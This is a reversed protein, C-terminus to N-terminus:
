MESASLKLFSALSTYYSGFYPAPTRHPDPCFRSLHGFKTWVKDMTQGIERLTWVKDVSQGYFQTKDLTQGAKTKSIDLLQGARALM